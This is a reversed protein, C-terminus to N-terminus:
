RRNINVGADFAENLVVTNRGITVSSLQTYGFAFREIREVSDPISVTKISTASFADETIIKLKGPIVISSFQNSSFAGRGLKELKNPLKLSSINAMSFADNGIEIINDPLILDGLRNYNFANNGIYELNTSWKVDTLLLSNFANDGIYKVSDPLHVSHLSSGFGQEKGKFAYNGIHVVTDPIVVSTLSVDRYETEVIMNFDSDFFMDNMRFANDGIKTVLKGNIERPIIVDTPGSDSYGTISIGDAGDSEWTFYSQATPQMTGVKRIENRGEQTVVRSTEKRSIEVGDKYTVEYVIEELKPKAEQIIEYTGVYMTNDNQEVIQTNPTTETQIDNGTTIIGTGIEIIKHQSEQTTIRGTEERNIEKGDKYTLLYAVEDIQPRANQIVREENEPLTNVYRIEDSTSNPYEVTDLVNEKTIIGTGVEIITHRSSQTTERSIETRDIEVGDKYTVNHTISEIQPRETQVTRQEGEPLTDVNIYEIPKNNPTELEETLEKNTIIGTGIEIIKHQSEQTIIRNTEVRNIEIGDKYTLRYSVEDIQPRAQQIVREQGEPLTDVYRTEEPSSNPTEKTEIIDENTIIGTGVEIITHQSTQEVNRSVEEREIEKGDRYTVSYTIKEILPREEQIIRQEGEPLTDVDIYEVEKGNPTEVTESLEKTTIIGTGIEIIEHKSEQVVVRELEKRNIEQGDKYVIHYTVDELKPQEKQIVNEQGEALTDVYIIDKEKENPTEVREVINDETIIGTGVEIITNLGEQIIRRSTETRSVEEGKHYEIHYIVEEIQPQGKQKMKQEGEPLTAVEKYVVDEFPTEEYDVFTDSEILQIDFVLSNKYDGSHVLIDETMMKIPVSDVHYPHTVPYFNAVTYLNQNDLNNKNDVFGYNLEKIREFYFDITRGDENILSNSQEKQEGKDTYVSVNIYAGDPLVVHDAGVEFELLERKENSLSFSTSTEIDEPITIMYSPNVILSVDTEERSEESSSIDKASAELTLHSLISMITITTYLLKKM